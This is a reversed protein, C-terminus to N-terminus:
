KVSFISGGLNSSPDPGNEPEKLEFSSSTDFSRKFNQVDFNKNQTELTCATLSSCAPSEVLRIARSSLAWHKVV